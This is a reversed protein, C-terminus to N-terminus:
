YARRVTPRSRKKQRKEPEFVTECAVAKNRRGRGLDCHDEDLGGDLEDNGHQGFLQDNGADGFLIDDGGEGFSGEGSDGYLVDDGDGGHITDDGADGFLTDNGAEGFIIDNGEDGHILNAGTGGLIVDDGEVGFIEDDGGRGCIVDNAPTGVIVEPKDTGIITCRLPMEWHLAASSDPEAAEQVADGDDAWATVRSSASEQASFINQFNSDASYVGFSFIGKGDTKGSIRHVDPGFPDADVSEPGPWTNDIPNLPDCFHIGDTPGQFELMVAQGVAPKNLKAAQVSMPACTERLAQWRSPQLTICPSGECGSVAVISSAEFVGRQSLEREDAVVGGHPPPAPDACGTTATFCDFTTIGVAAVDEPRHEPKLRCSTAPVGQPDGTANGPLSRYGCPQPDNGGPNGIWNLAATAGTTAYWVYVGDAGGSTAGEITTAGDVFSLPEGNKPHAIEAWEFAPDNDASPNFSRNVKVPMSDSAGGDLSVTLTYDGDKVGPRVGIPPGPPVSVSVSPLPVPPSVSPVPVPPTVSPVPSAPPSESPSPAPDATASPSPAAGPVALPRNLNWVFEYINSHGLRTAKGLFSRNVSVSVEGALFPADVRALVRFIDTAILNGPSPHSLLKVTPDSRKLVWKTVTEVKAKNAAIQDTDEGPEGDAWATITARGAITSSLGFVLEGAENTVGEVHICPFGKDPCETATEAPHTHGAAHNADPPNLVKGGVGCERLIPDPLRLHLDINFNDIAVSGGTARLHYLRCSGVPAAEDRPSVDLELPGDLWQADSVGFPEDLDHSDNDAPRDSTDSELPEDDVWAKLSSSGKQTAFIKFTWRGTDTTGITASEIGKADPGDAVVGRAQKLTAHPTGLAAGATCSVASETITAKDPATADPTTGADAGFSGADGPGRLEVDVNAGVVPRGFQDIVRAAFELCGDRAVRRRGSPRTTSINSVDFVEKVTVKMDAPNQVFPHVHHADSSEAGGGKQAIIALATVASPRDGAALKCSTDVVRANDTSRPTGSVKEACTKYSVNGNLPSTSYQIDFSAVGVSGIGAVNAKWEGAKNRYFGLPGDNLPWQLAVSESAPTANDLHQVSVRVEDSAIVQAGDGARDFLNVKIDALGETFADPIDWFGEFTGATGPVPCLSGLTVQDTGRLVYAEVIADEPAGLVVATLHYRRDTGDYKDSVEIPTELAIPNLIQVTPGAVQPPEPPHPPRPPAAPNPPCLGRDNPDPFALAWTVPAIAMVLAIALM